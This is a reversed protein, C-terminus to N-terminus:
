HWTSIFVKKIFGNCDGTRRHRNKPMQDGYIYCIIKIFALFFGRGKPRLKRRALPPHPAM